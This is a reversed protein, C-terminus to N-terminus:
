MKDFIAWHVDDDNFQKRIDSLYQNTAKMGFDVRQRFDKVWNQVSPNTSLTM